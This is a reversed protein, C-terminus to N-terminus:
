PVPATPSRSRAIANALERLPARHASTLMPAGQLWRVIDRYEHLSVRWELARQEARAGPAFTSTTALVGASARDRDLAGKLALVVEPGVPRDPAWQKCQVIYLLRCLGVNRAAYLDVGKDGSRPTLEVTFGDRAFLEAILEEFDRWHMQHLLHPQAALRRLVEDSIGRVTREVRQFGTSNPNLPNGSPDLLASGGFSIPPPAPSDLDDDNENFYTVDITKGSPLTVRRVYSPQEQRPDLPSDRVQAWRRLNSAAANARALRRQNIAEANARRLSADRALAWRSLVIEEANARRASADRALASRGLKIAGAGTHGAFGLLRLVTDVEIKAM